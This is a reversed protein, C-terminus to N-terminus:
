KRKAGLERQFGAKLSRKAKPKSKFAPAVVASGSKAAKKTARAAVKQSKQNREFDGADEDMMERRRKQKRNLGAYKDKKFEKNMIQQVEEEEETLQKVVATSATKADQKEQTTQFWTRAPRAFIENEHAVMNEAKTLDREAM